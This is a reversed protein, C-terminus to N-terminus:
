WTKGCNQICFSAEFHMSIGRKTTQPPPPPSYMCINGRGLGRGLPGNGVVNWKDEPSLQITVEGLLEAGEWGAGVQSVNGGEKRGCCRQMDGVCCRGDKKNGTEMETEVELGHTGRDM